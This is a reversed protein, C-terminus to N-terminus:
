FTHICQKRLVEQERCRPLGFTKLSSGLADIGALRVLCTRVLSDGKGKKGVSLSKLEGTRPIDLKVPQYLLTQLM